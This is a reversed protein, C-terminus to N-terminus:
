PRAHVPDQERRAVLDQDTDGVLLRELGSDTM